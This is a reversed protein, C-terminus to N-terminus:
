HKESVIKLRIVMIIIIIIITHPQIIEVDNNTLINICIM